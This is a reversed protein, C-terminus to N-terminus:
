ALILQYNHLELILYVPKFNTVPVNVLVYNKSEGRYIYPPVFVVDGVETNNVWRDRNQDLWDMLPLPLDFDENLSALQFEHEGVDAVLATDAVLPSEKLLKLLPLFTADNLLVYHVNPDFVTQLNQKQSPSLLPIQFLSYRLESIGPRQDVQNDEQEFRANQEISTNLVQAANALQTVLGNFKEDLSTVRTQHADFESAILEAKREIAFRSSVIAIGVVM